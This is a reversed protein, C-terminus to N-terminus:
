HSAHFFQFDWKKRTLKSKPYVAIKFGNPLRLVGMVPLCGQRITVLLFWRGFEHSLDNSDIWNGSLTGNKATRINMNTRIEMFRRFSTAHIWYFLDRLLQPSLKARQLTSGFAKRVTSTPYLPSKQEYKGFANYTNRWLFSTQSVCM